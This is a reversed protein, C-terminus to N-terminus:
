KKIIEAESVPQMSSFNNWLMVKVTDFDGMVAFSEDSSSYARSEVTVLTGNKYAALIVRYSGKAGHIKVNCLTYSGHADLTTETYVTRAWQAYLTVTAGNEATLNKAIAGDPYSVGSGDAKTNWGTFTYYNRTFGNKTLTSETDYRHASDATAGTGGNANYRVIYSHPTWQAYLTQNSTITVKTDKTVQTGGSAATFWGTFTYGTRTPTPLDGYTSSYTVTKSATPTTGGNANFSVTYTPIEIECIFGINTIDTAPYYVNSLGVSKKSTKYKILYSGNWSSANEHWDIYNPATGDIWKWSGNQKTAGVYYWGRKGKDILQNVYAKEGDSGITVLHGGLYECYVKAETWSINADILMYKSGGYEGTATINSEKPEIELIFGKSTKNINNADNWKNGYSKRIELFHEKEGDTGNSNPEGSAWNTYSFSEGTIWRYKKATDDVDTGGLWYADKKGSGILSVIADNEAQSTITALHGGMWQCLDKAFSWSMEYDYLAYIHGNSLVTKVPNYGDEFVRFTLWNSQPSWQGASNVAHIFITYEGSKLDSFTISTSSTTGTKTNTTYAYGTPYEALYYLYSSANSVGSWSITIDEGVRAYQRNTKISPASPVPVNGGGNISNSLIYDVSYGFLSPVWSTVEFHLHQGTSNGTNGMYGLFEGKSITKGVYINSSVSSMHAMIITYGDNTDFRVYNGYDPTPYTNYSPPHYSVVQTIKGSTPAYLKITGSHPFDIGVGSSTHGNYTTGKIWIGSDWPVMWDSTAAHIKVGFM